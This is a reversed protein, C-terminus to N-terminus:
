LYSRRPSDFSACHDVFLYAVAKIFIGTPCPECALLFFIRVSILDNHIYVRAELKKCCVNTDFTRHARKGDKTSCRIQCGYNWCRIGFDCSCEDPVDRSRKERSREVIKSNERYSEVEFRNSRFFSPRDLRPNPHLTETALSRTDRPPNKRLKSARDVIYWERDKSLDSPLECNSATATATTTPSRPSPSLNMRSTVPLSLGAASMAVNLPITIFPQQNSQTTNVPAVTGAFCHWFFSPSLFLRRPAM